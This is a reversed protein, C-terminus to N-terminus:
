ILPEDLQHMRSLAGEVEGALLLGDDVTFGSEGDIMGEGSRTALFAHFRELAARIDDPIITESSCLRETVIRRDSM